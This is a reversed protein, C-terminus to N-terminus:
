RHSDIQAMWNCPTHKIVGAHKLRRSGKMTIMPRFSHCHIIYAQSVVPRILICILLYIILIIENIILAM